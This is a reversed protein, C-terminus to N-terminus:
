FLIGIFLVLNGITTRADEQEHLYAPIIDPNPVARYGNDKTFDFLGRQWYLGGVLSNTSSIALELGGGFGLFVNAGVLDRSINQQEYLYDETEIDGRARTLFSFTLVPAEVFWNVNDKGEQRFKLGVPFELYQLQYRIRVGDPLPKDGTQLLPDDLDSDPLYNGGVEYQFEGGEHFALNIGATFSLKEKFYIESIAGLKLGLSGGSKVILPENSRVGSFVPSAQFGIRFDRNQGSM